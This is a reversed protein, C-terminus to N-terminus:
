DDIEVEHVVRRVDEPVAHPDHGLATFMENWAIVREASM